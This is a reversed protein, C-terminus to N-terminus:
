IIQPLLKTVVKTIPDAPVQDDKMEIVIAFTPDWDQPIAKLYGELLNLRILFSRFYQSLVNETM